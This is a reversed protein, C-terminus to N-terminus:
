ELWGANVLVIYEAATPDFAGLTRPYLLVVVDLVSGWRQFGAPLATGLVVNAADGMRDPAEGSALNFGRSSWGGPLGCGPGLDSTEWTAPLLISGTGMWVISGAFVTLGSHVSVAAVGGFDSPPVLFVWQDRSSPGSLLNGEGVPSSYPFAVDASATRRATAEDTAAYRGCVFAHGLIKLSAYDLRVVATCTGLLQTQRAISAAIAACDSAAGADRPPDPCVFSWAWGGDTAICVYTPTGHPCDFDPIELGRCSGADPRSVAGGQGGSGGAGGIGGNGMGATGGTGTFGGSVHADAGVSGGSANADAGPSASADRRQSANMGSRCASGLAAALVLAGATRVVSRPHVIRPVRSM